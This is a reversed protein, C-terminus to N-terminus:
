WGYIIGIIPAFAWAIVPTTAIFIFLIFFGTFAAISALVSTKISKASSVSQYLFPGFMMSVLVVALYIGVVDNLGNLGLILIAAITLTGTGAEL